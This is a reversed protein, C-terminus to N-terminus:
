DWIEDVGEINISEDKEAPLINLAIERLAIVTAKDGEPDIAPPHGNLIQRARRSAVKVLEFRNPYIELCDEITVRAM